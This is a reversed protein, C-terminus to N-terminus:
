SKKFFSDLHKVYSLQMTVATLSLESNRIPYLAKNGVIVVMSIGWNQKHYNGSFRAYATPYTELKVKKLNEVTNGLSIGGKGMASIMWRNNIVWSYAYGANFGVQISEFQSPVNETKNELGKTRYYFAGGGALWSGASKYQIENLDFAAKSSFQQNNFIYTGEAGVQMVFMDSFFEDFQGSEKETHFGKYKQLFLDFIMTQGYNHLQFDLINSKGYINKDKLPIFGYGANLSFITNKIAIGVGTNLPYNPIYTSIGDDLQLFSTSFNGMVRIKHPYTGIFLSDRHQANMYMTFLFCVITFFRTLKLTEM